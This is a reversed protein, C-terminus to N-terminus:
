QTIRLYPSFRSVPRYYLSPYNDFSINFIFNQSPRYQLEAGYFIQGDLGNKGSQFSSYTPQVFDFRTNFSWNESLLYHIKNSYVSTSLTRGGMSAISLSFGHSILLRSPAFLSVFPDQQQGLTPYSPNNKQLQSKFQGITISTGILVYVVIIKAKLLKM